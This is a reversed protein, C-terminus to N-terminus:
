DKDPAKWGEPPVYPRHLTEPTLFLMTGPLVVIQRHWMGQPVICAEGPHLQLLQEGDEREPESRLIVTIAGELLYLMEDQHPHMEWEDRQGPTDVTLRGVLRGDLRVPLMEVSPVARDVGNSLGNDM